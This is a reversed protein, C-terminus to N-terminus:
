CPYRGKLLARGTVGALIGVARFHVRPLSSEAKAEENLTPIVISVGPMM